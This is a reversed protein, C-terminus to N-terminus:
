NQSIRRERILNRLSFVFAMLWFALGVLGLGFSLYNGMLYIATQFSLIAVITLLTGSVSFGKLINRDKIIARMMLLIAIINVFNGVNLAMNIGNM